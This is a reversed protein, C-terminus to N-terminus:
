IATAATAAAVTSHYFPPLCVAAYFLIISLSSLNRMSISLLSCDAAAAVDATVVYFPINVFSANWYFDVRVWCFCCCYIRINRIYLTYAKLLLKYRTRHPHSKPRTVILKMQYCLIAQACRKSEKKRIFKGRSIQHIAMFHFLWTANLLQISFSVSFPFFIIKHPDM